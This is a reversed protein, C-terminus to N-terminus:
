AAILRSSLIETPTLPPAESSTASFSTLDRVTKVRWVGTGAPFSTNSNASASFYRAGQAVDTLASM